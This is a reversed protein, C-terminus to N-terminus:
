RSENKNSEERDKDMDEIMANIQDFIVRNPDDFYKGNTKLLIDIKRGREPDSLSIKATHGFPTGLGLVLEYDKDILTDLLTSIDHPKTRRLDVDCKAEDGKCFCPKNEKPGLCRGQGARERYWICKKM